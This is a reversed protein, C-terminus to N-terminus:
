KKAPITERVKGPTQAFADAIELSSYRLVSRRTFPALLATIGAKIQKDDESTDYGRDDKGNQAQIIKGVRLLERQGDHQEAPDSDSKPAKPSSRPLSLVL